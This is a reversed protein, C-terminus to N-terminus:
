FGDAPVENEPRAKEIRAQVPEIKVQQIKVQQEMGGKTMSLTNANSASISVLFTQAAVGMWVMLILLPL